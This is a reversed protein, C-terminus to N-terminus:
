SARSRRQEALVAAAAHLLAIGAISLAVSRVTDPADHV